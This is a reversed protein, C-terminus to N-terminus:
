RPKPGVSEGVQILHHLGVMGILSITALMMMFIAENATM